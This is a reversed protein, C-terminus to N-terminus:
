PLPPPPAVPPPASVALASRSAASGQPLPPPPSIPPPPSPANGLAEGRAPATAAPAPAPLPAPATSGQPTPGPGEGTAAPTRDEPRGEQGSKPPSNTPTSPVQEAPSPPTIPAAAGTPASRQDPLSSAPPDAQRIALDREQRAQVPQPDATIVAERLPSRQPTRGPSQQPQLQPAWILRALPEVGQEMLRNFGALARDALGGALSAGCQLPNGCANIPLHPTLSALLAGPLPMSRRSLRLMYPVHVFSTAGGSIWNADESSFGKVGPIIFRSKSAHDPMYAAVFGRERAMTRTQELTLGDRSMLMALRGDSRLGYIVRIRPLFYRIQQGMSISYAGKYEPPEPELDNYVSHLGGIFTDFLKEREATLEGYGFDVRGDYRVGFFARQRSASRNPGRWIRGGLKLDGLPVTSASGEEGYREYMPGSVFALAGSDAFAEQERDWGELLDFQVARPDIDFSFAESDPAYRFPGAAEGSPEARTPTDTSSVPPSGLPLPPAIAVLAGLAALPLVVAWLRKRTRKPRRPKPRPKRTPSQVELDMVQPASGRLKRKPPKPPRVTILTQIRRRRPPQPPQEVGPLGPFSPGRLWWGSPM